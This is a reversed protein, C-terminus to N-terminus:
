CVKLMRDKGFSDKIVSVEKEPFATEFIAKLREGQKYGIEMYLRGAEDLHQPAQQAIKEYIAYGDNEAYLASDPEFKQVSADVEDRDDPSIYPPNSIILDFSGAIDDLVDSCVLELQVQNAKANEGALELASESLDSATLKWSPCAKALSIAIAGSGTGIDLVSLAEQHPNEELIMQVLEETEPRPILVREDVKFRLGAFDEWGIIYQPPEDKALRDAIAKLTTEDEESIEERMLNLWDLKSLEHQQRWVFELEFPEKLNESLKRTLEIWLM